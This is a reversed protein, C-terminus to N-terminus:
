PDQGKSLYPVPDHGGPHWPHCRMIRRLALWSGSAFGHRHVAQEAYVSCSPYFRCRGGLFFALTLRYLRILGILLGQAFGVRQRSEVAM